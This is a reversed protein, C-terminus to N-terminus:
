WIESHLESQSLKKSGDVILIPGTILDPPKVSFKGTKKFLLSTSSGAKGPYTLLNNEVSLLLYCVSNHTRLRLGKHYHFDAETFLPILSTLLFFVESRYFVPACNLHVDNFWHPLAFNHIM